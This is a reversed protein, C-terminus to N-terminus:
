RLPREAGSPRMLAPGALAPTGGPHPLRRAPARRRSRRPATQMAYLTNISALCFLWLFLNQKAHTISIGIFMVSQVFISAGIGYSIALAYPRARNARILAGASKFAYVIMMVFTTLGVIGGRVGEKVYQNTLDFMHHGWHATSKTGILAWEPFRRIANDILKYRHYSTSGGVAGARAILHWVPANMVFHLGVLTMAVTARLTGFHRRVLFLGGAAFAAATAFVPTSSASAFVCVLAGLVGFAALMRSSRVRWWVIALWPLLSAWYCGAHIPHVFPGQCRLRGERAMTFPSAGGFTAFLNRGTRMEVAFMMGSAIALWPLWRLIQDIDGWDRIWIRTLLYASAIDFTIGAQLVFVRGGHLAIYTAASVLIWAAVVADARVWRRGFAEGYALVRMWGVLYLIRLFSFDLGAIVVRQSVPIFSAMVIFPLIARRRDCVFLAVSLTVLATLGLPHLTTQGHFVAEGFGDRIYADKQVFNQTLM